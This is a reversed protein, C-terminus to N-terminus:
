IHENRRLNNISEDLLDEIEDTKKNAVVTYLLDILSLQSIRSAMAGSRRSLGESINNLVYDAYDHIKSNSFQTIALIKVNREKCIKAIDLIDQTNGSNTIIIALDDERLTSAYTIQMHLDQFSKVNIGIRTFKYLADLAVLGSASIGFLAIEHAKIILDTVEDLTHMDLIEYTDQLAKINNSFVRKALISSDNTGKIDAYKISEVENNKSQNHVLQNSIFHKFDKLGSFGLTQAFRVWTAQSVKSNNVVEQMPKTILDYPHELFYEATNKEQPNLTDLASRIKTSLSNLTEDENLNFKAAM